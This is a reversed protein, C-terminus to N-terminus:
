AARALDGGAAPGGRHGGLGAATEQAQDLDSVALDLHFQKGGREDPWQPPQYGDVQGFGMAHAPGTLMAYDESSHAVERGSTVGVLLRRGGGPDSSDLAHDHRLRAPADTM